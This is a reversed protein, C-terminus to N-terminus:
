TPLPVKDFEFMTASSTSALDTLTGNANVALYTNSIRVTNPVNIIGQNTNGGHVTKNFVIQLPNGVSQYTLVNNTIGVYNGAIARLRIFNNTAGEVVYISATQALVVNNSPDRSWFLGTNVDKIKVNDGDVLNFTASSTFYLVICIVIIILFIILAGISLAILM